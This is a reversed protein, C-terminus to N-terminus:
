RRDAHWGDLITAPTFAAAEAPTLQRRTESAPAVGPGTTAFETLRAERPTLMRLVGDPNRYGMSTWGEHRIHADMWCRLFTASGTLAMNGGARWPRGLFTSRDPVGPERALRCRDFVLGFRQAAPTSPAAVYGQGPADPVYRTVIECADFLAAGGGFIFDVGGAIRCRRFWARANVYLTDQFGAIACDLVRTRDASRDILLAVAQFGNKVADNGGRASIFDFDNAITLGRLTVDHAAITLTASGSTGWTGGGPKPTGSALAHTLIAARSQGVIEVGPTTITLKEDHIGNHLLIRFRPRSASAAAALAAGLTPFDGGQGVAADIQRTAARVPLASVAVAAGSLLARRNIM